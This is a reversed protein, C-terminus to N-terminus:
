PKHSRAEAKEFNVWVQQQSMPIPIGASDCAIKIRRRFERSVDWQKLPETKIWVKITIGRDGFNEVGLVQPPELIHDTWDTEESMKQAVRDILQIAKDIDVDYAITINLDARSWQSSLNAVIKIESNPITILRGEGDRLQTIRLNINEVLGSVSGVNIVDGVAYQDELIIFFGNIADKILNQSALSLAVGVIGAGALLPAIDVGVVSLILVIGITILVITVISKSIRTITTVRLQLRRHEQRNILYSSVIFVSNFRAILAYSVRILSYTILIIIVIRIPIQLGSVIWFQLFRTYPFLGLIFIIGGGWVTTQTLQLLRLQVEKINWQQRQNLQKSIPLYKKEECPALQKKIKESIKRWRQIIWSSLAVLFLTSVAILIQRELFKGEREQKAKKFGIKLAEILQDARTDISVGELNADDSNVTLLRIGDDNSEDGIIVYLDILNGKRKKTVRITDIDQDLYLQSIENLQTQISYIRESLEPQLSAIKFLCNGDLRICESVLVNDARKKILSNELDQSQFLFDQIFPIQAIVPTATLLNIAILCGIIWCFFRKKPM